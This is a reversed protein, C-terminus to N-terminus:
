RQISFEKHTSPNDVTHRQQNNVTSLPPGERVDDIVDEVREQDGQLVMKVTGDADNRVYGTVDNAIASRRTHNRFGVGQVHGEVVVRVTIMYNSSPENKKDDAM